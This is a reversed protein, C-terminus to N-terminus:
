VAVEYEVFDPEVATRLASPQPQDDAEASISAFFGDPALSTGRPLDGDFDGAVIELACPRDL